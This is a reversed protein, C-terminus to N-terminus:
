TEVIVDAYYSHLSLILQVKQMYKFLLERTDFGWTEVGTISFAIIPCSESGTGDMEWRGGSLVKVCMAIYVVWRSKSRGLQIKELPNEVLNRYVNRAKEM